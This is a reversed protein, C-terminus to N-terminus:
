ANRAETVIRRATRESCALHTARAIELVIWPEAIAFETQLARAFVELPWRKSRRGRKAVMGLRAEALLRLLTETKAATLSVPGDTIFGEVRKIANRAPEIKKDMRVSGYSPHRTQVYTNHVSRVVLLVFRFRKPMPLARALDFVGPMNLRLWIYIPHRALADYAAEFDRYKSRLPALLGVAPAGPPIDLRCAETCIEKLSQLDARKWPFGTAM